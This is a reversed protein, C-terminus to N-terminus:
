SFQWKLIELIIVAAIGAVVVYRPDIGVEAAIQELESLTHSQERTGTSPGHEQLEAARKLILAMERDTYRRRDISKDSMGAGVETVKM